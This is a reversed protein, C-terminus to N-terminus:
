SFIPKITKIFQPYRKVTSYGYFGGYNARIDNYTYGATNYTFGQDSIQANTAGAFAQIKVFSAITKIAIDQVYSEPKINSGILKPVISINLNQFAEVTSQPLSTLLEIVDPSLYVNRIAEVTSSPTSLTIDLPSVSILKPISVQSSPLSLVLSLADPSMTINSTTQTDAQPQSLLLNLVNANFLVAFVVDSNPLSLTMNVSEPLIAINCIGHYPYGIENYSLGLENYTTCDGISKFGHYSAYQENYTFGEQNYSINAM